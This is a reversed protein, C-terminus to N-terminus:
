FSSRHSPWTFPIIEAIEALRDTVRDGLYERLGAPPLNSILISSRMADYRRSLVAALMDTEHHTGRGIGIEDIVLLDPAVLEAFIDAESETRDNYSARVRLFLDEATLYRASRLHKTVVHRVTAAALHSKGTGNDGVMVISAGGELDPFAKAFTQMTNKAHVQDHNDGTIYHTFSARALRPPLNAQRALIRAAQDRQDAQRRREEQGTQKAIQDRACSPCGTWRPGGIDVRFAEYDGHTLCSAPKSELIPKM